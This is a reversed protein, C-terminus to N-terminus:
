SKTTYDYDLKCLHCPYKVSETETTEKVQCRNDSSKHIRKMENDQSPDVISCFNCVQVGCKTCAHQSTQACLTCDETTKSQTFVSNTTSSAPQEVFNVSENLQPGTTKNSTIESNTISSDGQEACHVDFQEVFQEIEELNHESLAQEDETTQEEHVKNQNILEKVADKIVIMKLSHRLGGEVLQM